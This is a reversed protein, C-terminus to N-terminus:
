WTFYWYYFLYALLYYCSYIPMEFYGMESRYFMVLYPAMGALFSLLFVFLNGNKNSVENLTTPKKLREYIKESAASLVANVM